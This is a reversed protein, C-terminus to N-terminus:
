AEFPNKDFKGKYHKHKFYQIKKLLCPKHGPHFVSVVDNSFRTIEDPTFMDRAIVNISEGESSSKTRKSTSEGKNKSKSKVTEKGFLGSVYRATTLDTVGFIVKMSSGLFTEWSRPYTSKLSEITQSIALISAGYARGVLLCDEIKQIRGYQPMEDLIFLVQKSPKKKRNVLKLFIASLLLRITKSHNDCLKDYPIIIFLDAKGEFIKEFDITTKDTCHSLAPSRFIETSTRVTSLIDGIQKQDMGLFPKAMHAIEGELLDEEVLPSFIDKHDEKSLLHVLTKLNKGQDKFKQSKLIYLMLCTMVEQAKSRFYDSNDSRSGSGQEVMCAVISKVDDMLSVSDCEFFDFINFSHKKNQTTKFPDFLFVDKGKSKRHKATIHFNEGSKVDVVVVSGDYDLLTPVVLGIGKGAGSPAIVISHVPNARIIKQNRKTGQIKKVLDRPNEIGREKVVEGITIMGKEHSNLDEIETYSALSASGHTDKEERYPTRLLWPFTKFVFVISTLIMLFQLGQIVWWPYSRNIKFFVNIFHVFYSTSQDMKQNLTTLIDPAPLASKKHQFVLKQKMIMQRQLTQTHYFQVGFLPSKVFAYSLAFFSLLLPIASYKRTEKLFSLSALLNLFAFTILNGLILLRIMDPTGLFLIDWLMQKLSTFEIVLLFSAFFCGGILPLSTIKFRM